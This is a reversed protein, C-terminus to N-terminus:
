ALDGSLYFTNAVPCLISISAYQGATKYASGYSVRTTGTGAAITVQGTGGQIITCSFGAGLGSTTTVTVASSTTYYIIAGNDSASLNRATTSDTILGSPNIRYANSQVQTASLTVGDFTLDSDGAFTGSNNYQIQGSSGGPTSLQAISSVLVRVNNGNQVGALVETGALPTAAATLESIKKDAM